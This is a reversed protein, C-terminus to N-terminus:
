KSKLNKELNVKKLNNSNNIIKSLKEFIVNIFIQINNIGKEVLAKKLLNWNENLIWTIDKKKDELLFMKINEDNICEM